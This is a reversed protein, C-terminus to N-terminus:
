PDSQSDTSGGFFRYVGLAVGLIVIIAGSLVSSEVIISPLTKFFSIEKLVFCEVVIVYILVVASVEAITVFGGYVGALIISIM